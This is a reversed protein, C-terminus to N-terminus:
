DRGGFLGQLHEFARALGGVQMQKSVGVVEHKSFAILPNPVDDFIPQM